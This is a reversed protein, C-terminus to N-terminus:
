IEKNFQSLEFNYALDAMLFCKEILNELLDALENKV